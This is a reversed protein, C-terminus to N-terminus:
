ASTSRYGDCNSLEMLFCTTKTSRLIDRQELDDFNTSYCHTKKTSEQLVELGLGLLQGLRNAPLLKSTNGLGRWFNAGSPEWSVMKCYKWAWALFERWFAGQFGNELMELDLRSIRALFERKCYTWAWALFERWFAGLFGNELMEM